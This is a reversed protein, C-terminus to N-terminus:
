LVLVFQKREWPAMTFVLSKQLVRNEPNEVAWCRFAVESNTAHERGQPAFPLDEPCFPKLLQSASEKFEAEQDFALSFTQERGTKNTLTIQNGITRGSIFQGFSLIKQDVAAIDFVNFQRKECTKRTKLLNTAKAHRLEGFVKRSQDEFASLM